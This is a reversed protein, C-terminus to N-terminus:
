SARAFLTVVTKRSDGRDLDGTQSMMADPTTVTGVPVSVATSPDLYLLPRVARKTSFTRPPVAGLGPVAARKAM